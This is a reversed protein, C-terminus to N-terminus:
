KGSDVFYDVIKDVLEQLKDNHNIQAFLVKVESRDDNMCEVGRLQMNLPGTQELIPRYYIM